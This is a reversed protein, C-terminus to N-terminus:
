SVSQMAIQSMSHDALALVAQDLEIIESIAARTVSTASCGTNDLSDFITNRMSDLENVKDWHGERAAVYMRRMLTLLEQLTQESM